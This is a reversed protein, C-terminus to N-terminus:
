VNIKNVRKGSAIIYFMNILMLIHATKRLSDTMVISATQIIDKKNSKANIM